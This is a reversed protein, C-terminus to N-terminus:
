ILLSLKKCFELWYNQRSDNEHFKLVQDNIIVRTDKNAIEKLKKPLINLQFRKVFFTLLNFLLQDNIFEFIRKIFEKGFSNKVIRVPSLEYKSFNPIQSAVWKNEALFKEYYNERDYMPVIQAAWFPMYIDNEICFYELNMNKEDAFFSLCIKDKANKARPRLHLLTLFAVTFFRALWVRKEKVVVFLDIDSQNKTNNYALTNCVAIMQIFPFYSFLKCVWLVRKYKAQAHNYRNLRTNIINQRDKLFYFGNKNEIRDKLFKSTNLAELVDILAPRQGSVGSQQFLWQYIEVLTLPYDFIDHYAITNLISQRLNLYDM